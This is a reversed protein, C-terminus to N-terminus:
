LKRVYKKGPVEKIRDKMELDMLIVSVDKVPMGANRSIFDIQVPEFSLLGYVKEEEATLRGKIKTLVGTKKRLAVVKGLSSIEEIVDEYNEVMKAGQKILYHAGSSKESFISGPVAFVERGQELAMDATILAGSKAPAEIVVTGLSLGSIIRNRAPFNRKEPRTSLPFESIVAGCRTIREFLKRNEPPYCVDIGSGLVAITRGGSDLASQHAITDIGRALGSVITVNRSALDASIREAAMKGYSTARRTGVVGVAFVDEPIINGKVYLIFPSDYISKLSAPYSEDYITVVAIDQKRLEEIEKEIDVRNDLSSIQASLKQGIGPVHKLKDEGAELIGRTSGFYELLNKFRVAGLDRALSLKLLDRTNEDM